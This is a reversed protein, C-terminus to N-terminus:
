HKSQRERSPILETRCYIVSVNRHHAGRTFLNVIRKDRGANDMQDDLAMLNRKNIDLFTDHEVDSPIGKVFEINPVNVTM